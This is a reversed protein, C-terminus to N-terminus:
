EVNSWKSSQRRGKISYLFLMLLLFPEIYWRRWWWSTKGIKQLFPFWLLNSVCFYATTIIALPGSFKGTGILYGLSIIFAAQANFFLGLYVKSKFSYRASTGMHRTKQSGWERWTNPAKSLTQAEKNWRLGIKNPKRRQLLLDDDGSLIDQDAKLDAEMTPWKKYAWNRGVSMYAHGKRASSLYLAASQITEWQILKNLLGSRVEYPGVGLSVEAGNLLPRVMERLWNPSSPVCDADISVIIEHKASNWGALVAGKKGPILKDGLEVHSFDLRSPEKEMESIWNLTGDSSNDNVLVWQIESYNQDSLVSFLTPLQNSENRACTLVTM